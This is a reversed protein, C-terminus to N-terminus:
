DDFVQYSDLTGGLSEALRSLNTELRQIKNMTVWTKKNFSAPIEAQSVMHSYAERNINIIQRAPRCKRTYFNLRVPIEKVTKGRKIVTVSLTNFDYLSLEDAEEETYMTSGPLTICMTAKIDM